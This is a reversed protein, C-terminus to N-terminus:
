SSKKGNSNLSNNVGTMGKLIDNWFPAGLSVLLAMILLGPILAYPHQEFDDEYKATRFLIPNKQLDTTIVDRTNQVAALLDSPSQNTGSQNARPLSASAM